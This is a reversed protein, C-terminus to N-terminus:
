PLNKDGAPGTLANQGYTRFKELVQDMEEDPLIVPEGIALTLCYQAALEEVERALELAAFTKRGIAIQGHNALLCARLDGLAKLISRSLRGTGFTAYDALPIQKGGAAAVMYHFAPIPRRACALATAHRSHCHVIGGAARHAKYIDLHFQWESSPMRRGHFAGDLGILVIDEDTLDDYLMGSPTILFGDGYRKSVNGSRGASLGERNMQRAAEIVIERAHLESM